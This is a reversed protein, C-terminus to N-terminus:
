VRHRATRAPKARAKKAAEPDASEEPREPWEYYHIKRGDAKVVTV